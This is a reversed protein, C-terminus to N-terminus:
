YRFWFPQSNEGLAEFM